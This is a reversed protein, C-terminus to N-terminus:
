ERDEGQFSIFYANASWVLRRDKPTQKVHLSRVPNEGSEGVRARVEALRDLTATWEQENYTTLAVPYKKRVLLQLTPRWSTFGEDTHLGPHICVVLHPANLKGTEVYAEHFDHYLGDWASVQCPGAELPRTPPASKAMARVNEDPSILSIRASRVGAGSILRCLGNYAMSVEPLDAGIMHIDVAKQRLGAVQLARVLTVPLSVLGTTVRELCLRVEEPAPAPAMGALSCWAHAVGAASQLAATLRPQRAFWSDWSLGSPPCGSKSFDLHSFLNLPAPLCEIVQSFSVSHLLVNFLRQTLRVRGASRADM